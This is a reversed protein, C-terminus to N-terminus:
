RTGSDPELTDPIGDEVSPDQAVRVISWNQKGCQM